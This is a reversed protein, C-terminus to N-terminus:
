QRCLHSVKEMNVGIRYPFPAVLTHESCVPNAWLTVSSEVRFVNQVEEVLVPSAAVINACM